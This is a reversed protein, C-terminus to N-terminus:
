PTAEDNREQLVEAWPNNIAADTIRPDKVVIRKPRERQSVQAVLEKGFRGNEEMSVSSTSVGSGTILPTPQRAVEGYSSWPQVSGAQSVYFQSSQLLQKLLSAITLELPVPSTSVSRRQIDQTAEEAIMGTRLDKVRGLVKLGVKSEFDCIYPELSHKLGNMKPVYVFRVGLSQDIGLTVVGDVYYDEFGNESVSASNSPLRNLLLSTCKLGRLWGTLQEFTFEKNKERSLNLFKSTDDIVIRTIGHKKVFRSVEASLPGVESFIKAKRWHEGLNVKKESLIFLKLWGQEVNDWIPIGCTEITNFDSYAKETQIIISREGKKIGDIVFQAALITKGTGSKGSVLYVGGKPLGGGVIDNLGVVGTSLLGVRYEIEPTPPPPAPPGLQEKEKVEIIPKSNQLFIQEQCHKSLVQMFLSVDPENGTYNSIKFGKKFAPVIHQIVTEEFLRLKSLGPSGVRSNEAWVPLQGEFGDMKFGTVVGTGERTALSISVMLRMKQNVLLIAFVEEETATYGLYESCQPCYNWSPHEAKIKSHFHEAPTVPENPVSAL